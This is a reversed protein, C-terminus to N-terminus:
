KNNGSVFKAYVFYRKSTLGILNNERECTYLVLNQNTSLLNYATKDTDLALKHGTVQYEYDGYDTQIKIMDGNKVQDLSAFITDVHGGILITRCQGPVGSGIYVGAGKTFIQADDGWFVPTDIKADQITLTGIKQGQIPTDSPSKLTSEQGNGKQYINATGNKFSPAENLFTIQLLNWYPEAIPGAVIVVLLIGLFCFLLPMTIFKIVNGTKVKGYKSQKM